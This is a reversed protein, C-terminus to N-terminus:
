NQFKSLTDIYCFCFLTVIVFAPPIKLLDIIIKNRWILVYDAMFPCNPKRNFESPVIFLVRIMTVAVSAYRVMRFLSVVM